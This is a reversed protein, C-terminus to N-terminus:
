ARVLAFCIGTVTSLWHTAFRPDRILSMRFAHGQENGHSGEGLAVVRHSRFADLIANVPAFLVLGCNAIPM